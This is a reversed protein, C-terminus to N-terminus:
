CQQVISALMSNGYNFKYSQQCVKLIELRLSGNANTAYTFHPEWHEHANLNQGVMANNQIVFHVPLNMHNFVENTHNLKLDVLGEPIILWVKM